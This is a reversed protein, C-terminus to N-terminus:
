AAIRDEDETGKAAWPFIAAIIPPSIVTTAIVVLLVIAYVDSGVVHMRYGVSAVILGVEGRPVMGVGVALARKWGGGIAGVGCGVVKTLIAIVVLVIGVRLVHPDAFRGGDVLMGTVVFFFPVLLESLPRVQTALAFRDETEAFMMGAFFAGVIGALGIWEALAALLLMLVLAVVLPASNIHLRDLLHAHRNVLRPAILMEFAVFAVVQALLLVIHTVDVGGRAAGVAVSLVLMGLVDDIVAAALVIRAEVTSLLGGDALVRATIGVSTAVLATGIFLAEMPASGVARAFAWGAAFPLVVGVSGVIFARQGVGFLDSPRTELGVAFMLVIAGLTALTELTEGPRVWALLGPGILAGAILEGIVAPQGLREFVEGGAKGAAFVILLDVLIRATDSM